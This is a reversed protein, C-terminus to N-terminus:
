EFSPWKYPDSEMSVLHSSLEQFHKAMLKGAAPSLGFNEPAQAAQAMPIVQYYKQGDKAGKHCYTPIFTFPGLIKRGDATVTLEGKLILGLYTHPFPQATMFNGLSYM